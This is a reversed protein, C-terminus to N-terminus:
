NTYKIIKDNEDYCESAYGIQSPVNYKILTSCAPIDQGSTIKVWKPGEKKAIIYYGPGIPSGLSIGYFDGYKDINSIANRPGALNTLIDLQDIKSKEFDGVSSCTFSGSIKFGTLDGFCFNSYILQCLKGNKYGLITGFSENHEFNSNKVEKMGIVSLYNNLDFIVKDMKSNFNAVDSVNLKNCRFSFNVQSNNKVTVLSENEIPWYLDGNSDFSLHIDKGFNKIFISSAIAISNYKALFLFLTVLLFTLLFLLRNTKKKKKVM